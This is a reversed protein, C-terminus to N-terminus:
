TVACLWFVLMCQSGTRICNIPYKHIYLIIFLFKLWKANSKLNKKKTQIKHELLLMRLGKTAHPHCYVCMSKM